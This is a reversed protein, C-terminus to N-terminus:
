VHFPNNNSEGQNYDPGQGQVARDADPNIEANVFNMRQHYNDSDERKQLRRREYALHNAFKRTPLDPRVYLSQRSHQVEYPTKNDTLGEKVDKRLQNQVNSGNYQFRGSQARRVALVAADNDLAQRGADAASTRDCITKNLRRFNAMFNKKNYRRYLPRHPMAYVQAPTLNRTRGAVIDTELLAKATSNRWPSLPAEAADNDRQEQQAAGPPPNVSEQPDEAAAVLALARAQARLRAAANRRVMIFSSFLAM